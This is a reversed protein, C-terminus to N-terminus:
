GVCVGRGVRVAACGQEGGACGLGCGHEDAEIRAVAELGAAAGRGAGSRHDVAPRRGRAPGAAARRQDRSKGM